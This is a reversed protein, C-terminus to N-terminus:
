SPNGFHRSRKSIRALALNGLATVVSLVILGITFWRPLVDLDFAAQMIELLIIWCAVLGSLVAGKLFFQPTLQRAEVLRDKWVFSSKAYAGDPPM